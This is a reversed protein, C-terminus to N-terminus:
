DDNESHPGLRDANPHKGRASLLADFHLGSSLTACVSLPGQQQLVQSHQWAALSIRESAALTRAYQPPSSTTTRSIRSSSVNLM